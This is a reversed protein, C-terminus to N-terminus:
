RERPASPLHCNRRICRTRRGTRRRGPPAAPRPPAPAPVPGQAADLAGPSLELALLRSPDYPGPMTLGDTKAATFGFRGYYAADGVLLVAGHGAEAATRLARRMLAAGVGR